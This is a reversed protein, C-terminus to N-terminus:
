PTRRVQTVIDRRLPEIPTGALLWAARSVACVAAFRAAIPIEELETADAQGLPVRRGTLTQRRIAAREAPTPAPESM